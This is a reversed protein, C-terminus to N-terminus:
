DTTHVLSIIDENSNISLVADEYGNINDSLWQEGLRNTHFKVVVSFDDASLIATIIITQKASNWIEFVREIFLIAQLIPQKEDYDEIHLSNVFCEYDTCDGFTSTSTNTSVM